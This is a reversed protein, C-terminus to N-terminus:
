ASNAAESSFDFNEFRRALRDWPDKPMHGSPAALGKKTARIRQQVQELREEPIRGSEVGQVLALQMAEFSGESEAVLLDCGANVCQAVAAALGLGGRVADSELGHALILGRYGLKTRLLGDIVPASLVASRPYDFDYAKYVAQSLLVLPLRPLLERYPVLDQRWLEAMPKGSVPLELSTQEPVSGLGPFHKGCALLKHRELGRVFAAGCRAVRHPDSGFSRSGAIKESLPTALDLGPALNTNFGLLKLAEGMLEGLRAAASAGEEAVACPAPLPPLFASLPDVGGGEEEIALFPLAPLAAAIKILLECTAQPSRPLSGALLVGGPACAELLHEFSASRHPEKFKLLLLQGLTKERAPKM